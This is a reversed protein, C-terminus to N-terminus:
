SLRRPRRSRRSSSRPMCLESQGVFTVARQLWKHSDQIVRDCNCAEEFSLGCHLESPMKVFQNIMEDRLSQPVKVSLWYHIFLCDMAAHWLESVNLSPFYTM